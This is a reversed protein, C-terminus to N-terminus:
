LIISSFLPVILAGNTLLARSSSSSQMSAPEPSLWVAKQASNSSIRALALTSGSIRATQRPSGAAECQWAMRGPKNSADTSLMESAAIASPVSLSPSLRTEVPGVTVGPLGLAPGVVIPGVTMAPLGDACGVLVPGVTAGPLGLPAGM